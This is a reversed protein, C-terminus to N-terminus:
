REFYKNTLVQPSFMVVCKVVPASKKTKINNPISGRILAITIPFLRSMDIVLMTRKIQVMTIIRKLVVILPM